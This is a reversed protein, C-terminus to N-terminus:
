SGRHNAQFWRSRLLSLNQENTHKRNSAYLSLSSLAALVLFKCLNLQRQFSAMRSTTFYKPMLELFKNPKHIVFSRGNPLFSIIDNHGEKEAEEILRFIKFPFSEVSLQGAIQKLTYEEIGEEEGGGETVNDGPPLSKCGRYYATNADEQVKGPCRKKRLPLFLPPIASATTIHHDGGLLFSYDTDALMRTRRTQQQRLINSRITGAHQEVRVSSYMNNQPLLLLQQDRLVKLQQQLLNKADVEEMIITAPIIHQQLLLRNALFFQNAQETLRVLSLSRSTYLDSHNMLNNMTLANSLVIMYTIIKRSKQIQLTLVSELSIQDSYSKASEHRERLVPPPRM